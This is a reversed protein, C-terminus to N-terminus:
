LFPVVISVLKLIKSFKQFLEIFTESKWFCFSFVLFTNTQIHQVVWKGWNVHDFNWFELLIFLM